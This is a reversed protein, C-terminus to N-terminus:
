LRGRFTAACGTTSRLEPEGFLLVSHGVLSQVPVLCPEGFEPVLLLQGATPRPERVERDGERDDGHQRPAEGGVRLCPVEAARNGDRPAPRDDDQEDEGDREAHGLHGGGIRRRAAGIPPRVVEAARDPGPEGAPEVQEPQDRDDGAHIPEAGLEEREDEVEPSEVEDQVEGVLDREALDEDHEHHDQEEVRHDVDKRRMQDRQEVVDRHKPVADAHEHDDRDQDDDGVVM